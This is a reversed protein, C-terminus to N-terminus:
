SFDVVLITILEAARKLVASRIAKADHLVVIAQWTISSLIFLSLVPAIEFSSLTIAVTGHGPAVARCKLSDPLAIHPMFTLHDKRIPIRVTAAELIVLQM